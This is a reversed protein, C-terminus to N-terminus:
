FISAFCTIVISFKVYNKCKYLHNEYDHSEVIKLLAKQNKLHHLSNDENQHYQHQHNEYIYRNTYFSVYEKEFTDYPHLYTLFIHYM